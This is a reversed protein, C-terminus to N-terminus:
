QESKSELSNADEEEEEKFIMEETKNHKEILFILADALSIDRAVYQKFKTWVKDPVDIQIQSM